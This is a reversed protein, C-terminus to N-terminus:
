PGTLTGDARASQIDSRATGLDTYYTVWDKNAVDSPVSELDSSINTYDNDAQTPDNTVTVAANFATHAANITQIESTSPSSGVAFMSDSLQMVASAQVSLDSGSSGCASLGLGLAAILGAIATIKKVKMSSRGERSAKVPGLATQLSAAINSGIHAM